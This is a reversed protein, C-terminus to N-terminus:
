PRSHVGQPNACNKAHSSARHNCDICIPTAESSEVRPPSCDVITTASSNSSPDAQPAPVQAQLKRQLDNVHLQLNDISCAVNTYVLHLNALASLHLDAFTPMLLNVFEERRALIQVPHFYVSPLLTNSQSFTSGTAGVSILWDFWLSLSSLKLWSAILWDSGM